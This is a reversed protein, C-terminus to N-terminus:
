PRAGPMIGEAIAGAYWRYTLRLGERFSVTPAYGLLERARRIDPCRRPTGGEAPAGYRPAIRKGSVEGLMSIVQDITLEEDSNGVNIIQGAAADLTTARATAEAADTVYCFARTQSGDGEVTFTEGRELRMIFQPIVHDWGMRPGYVNHYRLVTYEIGARRSYNVVLLEGIIKSGSYSFRPNLVDPITAPVEEPTPFVAPTAYVESSSAFVVRRVGASVCARVVELTGGVNVDLVREPERYFTGTGQVAAMHVVVDRGAVAAAVTERDRVDGSIIPVDRELLRLNDTNGRSADDLVAVDEGSRALTHAVHSGLFGLGGTVLIRM